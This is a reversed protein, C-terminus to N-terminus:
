QDPLYMRRDIRCVHVPHYRQDGIVSGVYNQRRRQGSALRAVGSLILNPGCYLCYYGLVVPGLDDTGDFEQTVLNVRPRAERPIVEM